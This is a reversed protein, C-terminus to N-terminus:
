RNTNRSETEVRRSEEYLACVVRRVLNPLSNVSFKKRMNACHVRVTEHSINLRGAIQQQLQGGVLLDLVQRERPPLATYVAYVELWDVEHCNLPALPNEVGDVRLKASRKRSNASM